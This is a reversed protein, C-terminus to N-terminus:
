LAELTHCIHADLVPDRDDLQVLLLTHAISVQLKQEVLQLMPEDILWEITPRRLARIKGHNM